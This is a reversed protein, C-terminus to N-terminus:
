QRLALWQKSAGISVFPVVPVQVLAEVSDVGPTEIRYVRMGLELTASMGWPLPLEALGFVAFSPTTGIRTVSEVEIVGIIEQVHVSAGVDGGFGVVFEGIDFPVASRMVLGFEDSRGRFPGEAELFRSSEPGRDLLGHRRSTCFTAQPEFRLPASDFGWGAVMGACPSTAPLISGRLHAGIRPGHALSAIGLGGKRVLRAYDLRALDDLQVTGNKDADVRVEGEFVADVSRARVFYQGPRLHLTRGIDAASLEAMVPGERGSAFLLIDLRDPLTLAGRAGTSALDTLVMDDKGKFDYRFTPHQVGSQTRSSDAVTRDYTYRYAEQLSVADDHDSDGAGVLASVLHHTFFSGGLWDSEQADEGAASSTLIAMGEAPLSKEIRLPGMDDSRTAGKVRSLSGSRCADVILVRFDAASGRVIHELEQLQLDTEGLHLTEADAHGSYYVLLLAPEASRRSRIRENMELLVSRAETANRALLLATHQSPIGGLDNLVDRVKTADAQAWRLTPEELRGSNNGIIVAYRQQAYAAAPWFFGCLCVLLFTRSSSM